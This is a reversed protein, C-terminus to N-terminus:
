LGPKDPARDALRQQIEGLTVIVDQEATTVLDLLKTHEVPRDEGGSVLRWTGLMEPTVQVVRAPHPRADWDGKYKIGPLTSEEDWDPPLDGAEALALSKPLELADLLWSAHAFDIAQPQGYIHMGFHSSRNVPPPFFRNGSNVFNGHVRLREYAQPVCFGRRCGWRFAHRPPAPWCGWYWRHEAVNEDHLRSVLGAADRGFTM